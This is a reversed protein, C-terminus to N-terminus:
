LSKSYITLIRYPISLIFISQLIPQLEHRSFGIPFQFTNPLGSLSTCPAFSQSFGIPFQFTNSRYSVPLTYPSHSDSLSNFTLETFIRFKRPINWHSDSLSNFSYMIMPNLPLEKPSFGIPFQFFKGLRIPTKFLKIHSDSLSNFSSM